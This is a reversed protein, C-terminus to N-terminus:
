EEAQRMNNLDCPSWYRGVLHASSVRFGPAGLGDDEIHEKVRTMKHERDVEINKCNRLRTQIAPEEEAEPLSGLDTRLSM